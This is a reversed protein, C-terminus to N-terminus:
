KLNKLCEDNFDDDTEIDLKNKIAWTCFEDFKIKGSGDKDLEAFSKQAEKVKFGWKEITPIAAEFEDFTIKKDGDTDIRIFMESFELYQRLYVLLYRFENKEIFDKSVGKTNKVSDKAADFAKRIVEKKEYIEPLKLVDKIGKTVESFSLYGNKNQDMQEFIELRKQMGEKTRDLCLREKISSFDINTSPEM